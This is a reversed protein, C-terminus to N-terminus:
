ILYNNNNSHVYLEQYIIHSIVIGKYFSYFLSSFLIQYHGIWTLFLTFMLIFSLNLNLNSKIIDRNFYYHNPVHLLVM